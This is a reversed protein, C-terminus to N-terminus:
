CKYFNLKGANKESNTSISDLKDPSFIYYVISGFMTTIYLREKKIEDM